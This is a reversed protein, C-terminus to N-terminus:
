SSALWAHARLPISLAAPWIESITCKALSLSLLSPVAAARRWPCGCEDKWGGGRCAGVIKAGAFVGGGRGRGGLRSALLTLLDDDPQREAPLSNEPRPAPLGLARRLTVVLRM